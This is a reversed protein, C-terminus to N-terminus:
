WGGMLQWSDPQIKGCEAEKRSISDLQGLWIKFLQFAIEHKNGSPEEGFKKISLVKRPAELQPDAKARKTPSAKGSPDEKNQPFAEKIKTGTM